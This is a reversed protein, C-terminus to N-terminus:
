ISEPNHRLTFETQSTLSNQSWISSTNTQGMVIITQRWNISLSSCYMNEFRSSGGKGDKILNIPRIKLYYICLKFIMYITDFLPARAHCSSHPKKIQFQLVSSNVWTNLPRKFGMFSLPRMWFSYHPGVGDIFQTLGTPRM